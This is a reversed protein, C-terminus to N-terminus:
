GQSKLPTTDEPTGSGGNDFTVPSEGNTNVATVAYYYTTGNAASTDTFATGTDGTIGTAVQTAGTGDPSTSRYVNYSTAGTVASWAITVQGNGPTTTVGGPPPPTLTALPTATAEASYASEGGAGVATVVYYYPTGNTL